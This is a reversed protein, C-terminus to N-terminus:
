WALVEASFIPGEVCARTYTREGAEWVPVACGYCSGNACAMRERLALQAPVTGESLRKVANLMSAPGSAYLGAYSSLDGIRELVTRSADSAGKTPVLTADPYSESIWATYAEPATSPIELYADHAVGSRALRRAFLKLPSIWVGGGVLAVPGGDVTYGRGLPDSVLLGADEAALLATGRGRIEFLLSMVEDNYDHAFLPRSLFPDLSRAPGAFSAVRAMVFQGPEPPAGTWRYRLLAHDGFRERELVEVAHLKM